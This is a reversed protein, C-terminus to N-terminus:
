HAHFLDSVRRAILTKYETERGAFAEDLGDPGVDIGNHLDMMEEWLSNAFDALRTDSEKCDGEGPRHRNAEHTAETGASHLHVNGEHVHLFYARTGCQPCPALDVHGIQMFGQSNMTMDRYGQCEACIFDVTIM